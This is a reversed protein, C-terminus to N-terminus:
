PRWRPAPRSGPATPRCPRPSTRARGSAAWRWKSGTSPAATAPLTFPQDLWQGALTWTAGPSASSGAVGVLMSGTNHISLAHLGLSQNIQGSQAVQSGGSIAALYTPANTLFNASNYHNQVQTATLARSYVAVEDIMGVFQDGPVDHAIQFAATGTAISRTSATTGVLSGNIYLKMNASDYTVAVHTWQGLPMTNNATTVQDAASNLYREFYINGAAGVSFRWGQNGSAVFFYGAICAVFGSPPLQQLQVWAECSFASTGTFAYHNGADVYGNRFFVCSDNDGQVAGPMGRSIQGNYTGTITGAVDAASSNSVLDGLRWYSAPTDGLITQAYGVAM